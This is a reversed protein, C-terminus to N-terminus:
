LFRATWKSKRQCRIGRKCFVTAGGSNEQPKVKCVAFVNQSVAVTEGSHRYSLLTLNQHVKM